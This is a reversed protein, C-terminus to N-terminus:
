AVSEGRELQEDYARQRAQIVDMNRVTWDYVQGLPEQLSRGLPTLAYEVGLTRGSLVRRTIMGSRELRRLNQTLVRQTIGELRRKIDNFRRPEDLLVALILISWKNAIQDIIARSPCDTRFVVEDNM